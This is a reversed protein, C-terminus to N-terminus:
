VTGQFIVKGKELKLIHTICPLIEEEHHTIYLIQTATQGIREIINLIRARNAIDLGYCPEDVILLRPTKVMARALLVMRKQGYSLTAFNADILDKIALLNIWKQATTKEKESPFKYLGISDYFGSCIVDFALMNKRYQVQVESSVVGINKKIEWVSENSGKRKGFLHIQNAYGQVNEGTILKVITSKGSGNEGLICWNEQTGMQWTLKSLITKGSYKVSVNEMSILPLAIKGPRSKKASWLQKAASKPMVYSMQYYGKTKQVKLNTDYLRSINKNNLVGAKEGAYFIKGEKMMLIHTIAPNIEELRHAILIVKVDSKILKGITTQLSRRSAIDLGDFPEDLILLKPNKFLSRAILIKRMEGTSLANINKALLKKIGIKQIIAETKKTTNKAKVGSLFVDQGTTFEDHRGAYERLSDLMEEQELLNQHLEFSVYGILHKNSAPHHKNKEAFHLTIEGRSITAGGWIAKVLTSKGSGNPGIIAWHENSQLSLSFDKLIEREGARVTVKKFTLLPKSSKM